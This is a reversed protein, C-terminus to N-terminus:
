WNKEIQRNSRGQPQPPRNDELAQLIQEAAEQDMQDEQNEKNEKDKKDENNDQPQPQQQQQQQQQQQNILIALNRRAEEDNPNKRLAEKYAEVADQANNLQAYCNGENYKAKSYRIPDNAHRENVLREAKDYEKLAVSYLSDSQKQRISEELLSDKRIEEAQRYVANGVNMQAAYNNPNIQLARRYELEAQGYAGQNYLENGRRIERSERQAFASTSMALLVALFLTKEGFIDMKTLLKNKRNFIFFEILLLILAVIVFSPYQENYDMYEVGGHEATAMHELEEQIAKLATNSNDCHVYIGAGAEAIQQCMEENLKTVVLKGEKDKMLTGKGPEPITAGQPSGIGVVIVRIGAKQARQAVSLADDEHNEGDTIIIIARDANSLEDDFGAMCCELAAGIATGQLRIMDPTLANLFNKAATFDTTIPLQTFADGAFIVLGVRDNSMNDVLKSVLQKARDLRCPAVDEALMSNSIDLAVMADIGQHTEQTKKVGLQPRAAAIVLMTLAVMLIGFKLAPRIRSANPMLTAILEPDGFAKIQRRKYITLVVYGVCILLIVPIGIFLFKINAFYLM